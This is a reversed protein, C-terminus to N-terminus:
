DPKHEPAVIRAPGPIKFPFSAETGDEAGAFRKAILYVDGSILFHVAASDIDTSSHIRLSPNDDVETIMSEIERRLKLLRKKNRDGPLISASRPALAIPLIM